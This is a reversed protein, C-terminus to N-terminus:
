ASALCRSNRLMSGPSLMGVAMLLTKREQALGQGICCGVMRSAGRLYGIASPSLSVSDLDMTDEFFSALFEDRVIQQEIDHALAPDVLQLLSTSDDSPDLMVENLPIGELESLALQGLCNDTTRRITQIVETLQEVPPCGGLQPLAKGLKPDRSLVESIRAHSGARLQKWIGCKEDNRDLM